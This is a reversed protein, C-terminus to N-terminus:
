GRVMMPSALGQQGYRENIQQVRIDFLGKGAAHLDADQAIAALEAYVRWFYVDPYAEMVANTSTPTGTLIADPEVWAYVTVEGSIVNRWQLEGGVMQFDYPATLTRYGAEAQYTQVQKVQRLEAPIPWPTSPGAGAVAYESLNSDSRLAEGIALTAVLFAWDFDLPTFDTRHLYRAAREEIDARTTM